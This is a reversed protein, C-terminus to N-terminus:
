IPDTLDVCGKNVANIAGCLPLDDLACIKAHWNRISGHGEIAHMNLIVHIALLLHHDLTADCDQEWCNQPHWNQHRLHCGVVMTLQLREWWCVVRGKQQSGTIVQEEQIM